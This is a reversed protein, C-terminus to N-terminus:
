RSTTSEIEDSLLVSRMSTGGVRGLADESSAVEHSAAATVADVGVKDSTPLSANSTSVPMANEETATTSGVVTAVLVVLAASDSSHDVSPETTNAAGAAVAGGLATDLLSLSSKPSKPVAAGVAALLPLLPAASSHPSKPANPAGAALTEVADSVASSPHPLKPAEDVAAPATPLPSYDEDVAITQRNMCDSVPPGRGV